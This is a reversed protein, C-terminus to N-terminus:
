VIVVQVEDEFIIERL